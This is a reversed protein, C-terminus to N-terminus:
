ANAIQDGVHTVLNRSPPIITDYPQRNTANSSRRSQTKQSGSIAPASMEAADKPPVDLAFVRLTGHETSKVDTM